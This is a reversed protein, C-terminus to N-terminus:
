PKTCVLHGCFLSLGLGIACSLWFGLSIVTPNTTSNLASYIPMAAAFHLGFFVIPVLLIVWPYQPPRMRRILLTLIVAGCLVSGGNLFAWVPPFEYITLPYNGYYTWVMFHLAPIEFITASVFTIVCTIVWGSYSLGSNFQDRLAIFAPPFYFLYILLVYLPIKRGLMEYWVPVGIEPYIAQGLVDAWAEYFSCLVAGLLFYIPLMSRNKIAHRVCYIASCGALVGFIIHTYFKVGDDLAYIPAEPM